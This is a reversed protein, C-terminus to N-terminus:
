IRNRAAMPSTQCKPRYSQLVKPEKRHVLSQEFGVALPDEFSTLSKAM